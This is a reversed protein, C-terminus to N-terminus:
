YFFVAGTQKLVGSNIITMLDEAVPLESINPFPLMDFWGDLIPMDIDKLDWYYSWERVKLLKYTDYKMIGWSEGTGVVFYYDEGIKAKAKITDMNFGNFVPMTFREYDEADSHLINWLQVPIDLDGKVHVWFLSIKTVDERRLSNIYHCFTTDNLCETVKKALPTFKKPQVLFTSLPLVGIYYNYENFHDADIVYSGNSPKSRSYTSYDGRRVVYMYFVNKSLVLKGPNLQKPNCEYKKAERAPLSRFSDYYYQSFANLGFGLFSLFLLIAKM